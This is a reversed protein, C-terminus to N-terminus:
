GVTFGDNVGVIVIVRLECDLYVIFFGLSEMFWNGESGEEGVDYADDDQVQPLIRLSGQAMGVLRYAFPSGVSRPIHSARQREEKEGGEKIEFRQQQQCQM